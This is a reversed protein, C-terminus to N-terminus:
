FLLRGVASRTHVGLSTGGYCSDVSRLSGSSPEREWPELAPETAGRCPARVAWFRPMLLPYIARLKTGKLTRYILLAHKPLNTVRRLM